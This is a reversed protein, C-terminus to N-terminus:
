TPLGAKGGIMLLKKGILPFQRNAKKLYEEFTRLFLLFHSMENFILCCKVIEFSLYPLTIQNDM